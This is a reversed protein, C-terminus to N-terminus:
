AQSESGSIRRPGLQSIDDSACRSTVLRQCMWAPHRSSFGEPGSTAAAVSLAKPSLSLAIGHSGDCFSHCPHRIICALFFPLDDHLHQKRTDGERYSHSKGRLSKSKWVASPLVTVVDAGIVVLLFKNRRDFPSPLNTEPALRGERM